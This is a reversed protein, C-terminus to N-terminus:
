EGCGTPRLDFLYAFVNRQVYPLARDWTMSAELAADFEPSLLTQRFRAPQLDVSVMRNGPSKYLPQAVGDRIASLARVRLVGPVSFLRPVHVERVWREFEAADGQGVEFREVFRPADVQAGRAEVEIVEYVNASFPQGDIPQLSEIWRESDGLEENLAPSAIWDLLDTVERATYSSREDAQVHM